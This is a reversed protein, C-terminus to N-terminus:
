AVELSRFRALQSAYRDQEFKGFLLWLCFALEALLPVLYAPEVFTHYEVVM